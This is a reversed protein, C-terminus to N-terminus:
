RICNVLCTSVRERLRSIEAELQWVPAPQLAASRAAEATAGHEDIMPVAAVFLLEVVEDPAPSEASCKQVTCTDTMRPHIVADCLLM